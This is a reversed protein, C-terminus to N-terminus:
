DNIIMMSIVMISVFSLFYQEDILKSNTTGNVVLFKKKYHNYRIVVEGNFHSYDQEIKNLNSSSSSSSSTQFESSITATNSTNNTENDSINYTQYVNSRDGKMTSIPKFQSMSDGSDLSDNYMTTAAPIEMSKVNVDVNNNNMMQTVNVKRGAYTGIVTGTPCICGRKGQCRKLVCKKVTQSSM